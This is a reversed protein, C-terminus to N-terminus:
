EASDLAIVGLCEKRWLVEEGDSFLSLHHRQGATCILWKVLVKGGAGSVLLRAGARLVGEPVAFVGAAVGNGLYKSATNVLM